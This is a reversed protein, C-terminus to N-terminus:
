RDSLPLKMKLSKTVSVATPFLYCWACRQVGVSVARSEADALCTYCTSNWVFTAPFDAELETLGDAIESNIAM